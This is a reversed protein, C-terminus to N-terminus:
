ICIIKDVLVTSNLNSHVFTDRLDNNLKSYQAILFDIGSIRISIDSETYNKKVLTNDFNQPPCTKPRSKHEKVRKKSVAISRGERHQTM